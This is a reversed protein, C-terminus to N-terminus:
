RTRRVLTFILMPGTPNKSDRVAISNGRDAVEVCARLQSGNRCLLIGGGIQCLPLLIWGEPTAVNRNAATRLDLV